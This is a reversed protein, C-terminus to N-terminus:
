HGNFKMKNAVSIFIVLKSIWRTSNWTNECKAKIEKVKKVKSHHLTPSASRQPAWKPSQQKHAAVRHDLPMGNQRQKNSVDSRFRPFKRTWHPNWYAEFSVPSNTFWKEPCLSGINMGTYLLSAMWSKKGFFCISWVSRLILEPWFACIRQTVIGDRHWSPTRTSATSIRFSLEALMRRAEWSACCGSPWTFPHLTGNTENDRKRLQYICILHAAQRWKTPTGAMKTLVTAYSRRSMKKSRTPTPGKWGTCHMNLWGQSAPRHPFGVCCRVISLSEKAKTLSNEDLIFYQSQRTYKQQTDSERITIDSYLFNENLKWSGLLLLVFKQLHKPLVLGELRQLLLTCDPKAPVRM